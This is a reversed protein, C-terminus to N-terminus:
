PLLVVVQVARYPVTRSEGVLHPVRGPVHPQRAATELVGPRQHLREPPGQRLRRLLVARADPGDEGVLAPFSRSAAGTARATRLRGRARGSTSRPTRRRCIDGWAHRRGRARGTRVGTGPRASSSPRAGALSPRRVSRAEHDSCAIWMAEDADDVAGNRGTGRAGGFPRTPRDDTKAWPGARREPRLEGAPLRGRARHRDTSPDPRRPSRRRSEHGSVAGPVRARGVDRLPSARTADTEIRISIGGDGGEGAPPGFTLM